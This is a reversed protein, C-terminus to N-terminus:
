RRDRVGKKIFMTLIILAIGTGFLWNKEEFSGQAMSFLYLKGFYKPGSAFNFAYVMVPLMYGVAINDSIGYAFLGLAGLFLSEAYTGFIYTSLDVACGNAKMVFVFSTVLVAMATLSMAIRLICVCLHNTSKSEVVERIEPNQEPAFLPTLLVIGILAVFMELPVAAARADLGTLGFIVPALLLLLVSLALHPLFNHRLNAAAIISYRQFATIRM